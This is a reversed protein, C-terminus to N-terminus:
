HKFDAGILIRLIDLLPQDLRGHHPFSTRPM